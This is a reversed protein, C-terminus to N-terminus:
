KSGALLLNMQSRSLVICYLWGFQLYHEKNKTYQSCRNCFILEVLVAPSQMKNMYKASM